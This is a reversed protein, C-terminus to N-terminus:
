ANCFYLCCSFKM